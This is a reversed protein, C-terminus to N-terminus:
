ESRSKFWRGVITAGLVSAITGTALGSLVGWTLMMQWPETVLTTTAVAVAMLALAALVTRRIGVSQMIAAAFPGMLGYLMIGVSVSASVTARDWHLDKELPVLLVGPMSRVGASILLAVFTVAAVVWAYHFRQGVRAALAAQFSAM